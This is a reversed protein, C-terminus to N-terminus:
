KFIRRHIRSGEPYLGLKRTTGLGKIIQGSSVKEVETGM